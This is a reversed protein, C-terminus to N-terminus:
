GAGAAGDDRGDGAGGAVGDVFNEVVLAVAVADDVRGSNPALAFGMLHGLLERDDHGTPVELRGVDGQQDDVRLFTDGGGVRGDASVGVFAPARDDDDHVLPIQHGCHAGVAFWGGVFVYEFLLHAVREFIQM